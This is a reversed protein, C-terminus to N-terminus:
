AHTFVYSSMVFNMGATGVVQVVNEVCLKVLQFDVRFDLGVADSVDGLQSIVGQAQLSFGAGVCVTLFSVLPYLM